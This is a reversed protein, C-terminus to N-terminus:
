GIPRVESSGDPSLCVVSHPQIREWGDGDDLPESALVRGHPTQAPADAMYLSNTREVTSTLVVSISAGDALLMALQAEEEGVRGAVTDATACLAEVPSAGDELAAVTLLFLTETDSSGALSAYLHDPLSARLARMHRERFVPVYGNLVFSWRGYGLPPVGARDIDLGPTANRLAAVVCGSEISDLTAELDPAHWIPRPDALRLARGGTYWVVGYGDANVSGSLLERPEWSQRYLSHGGRFVLSSVPAPAGLYAVLRCM